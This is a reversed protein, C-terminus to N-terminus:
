QELMRLQEQLRRMEEDINDLREAARAAAAAGQIERAKALAFSVDDLVRDHERGFFISTERDDMFRGFSRVETEQARQTPALEDILGIVYSSQSVMALQKARQATEFYTARDDNYQNRRERLQADTPAQFAQLRTQAAELTTIVQSIRAAGGEAMDMYALILDAESLLIPDNTAGQLARAASLTEARNGGQLAVWMQALLAEARHPSATGIRRLAAMARTLSQGTEIKGEFYLFAMLLYSRDQAARQANTRAPAQVANDLHEIARDMQGNIASAIALSHQAFIYDPHSSPVMSFHSMADAIRNQQLFVEGQYYAAAQIVSDPTADVNILNFLNSVQAFDGERYALRLLGLRAFPVVPSRPYDSLIDNFGEVAAERMDMEEMNRNMYLNVFDNRFFDPFETLIRGGL